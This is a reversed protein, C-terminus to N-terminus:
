RLGGLTAAGDIVRPLWAPEVGFYDCWRLSWKQDTLTGFLGTFSAGAPDIAREGTLRFGIWGNAHLYHRVRGRLGPRDAAQQALVAAKVSSTGVDIALIHM